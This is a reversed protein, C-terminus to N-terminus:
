QKNDNDKIVDNDSYDVRFINNVNYDDRIKDGKNVIILIMRQSIIMMKKGNNVNRLTM